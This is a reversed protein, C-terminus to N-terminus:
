EKVVVVGKIKYPNLNDHYTYTGAKEFQYSFEDNTKLVAGKGWDPLSSNTPFPDASPQHDATDTNKWTVVSGKKIEVTAPSFGSATVTVVAVATPEQQASEAQNATPTQKTDKSNNTYLLTGAAVVFLLALLGAVIYTKRKNHVSGVVAQQSTDPAQADQGDVSPATTLQDQALPQENADNQLTNVSPEEKQDQEKKDSM